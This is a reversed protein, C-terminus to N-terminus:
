VKLNAFLDYSPAQQKARAKMAAAFWICLADAENDDAPTAGMKEAFQIAKDKVYRRKAEKLGNKRGGFQAAYVPDALVNKPGQTPLGLDSRWTAMDILFANAGCKTAAVGSMFAYGAVASVADFSTIRPMIPREIYVDTIGAGKILDVVFGEVAILRKTLPVDKPLKHTGSFPVKGSALPDGHAFGFTASPDLALIRM